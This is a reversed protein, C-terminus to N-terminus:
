KSGTLSNMKARKERLAAKQEKTLKKSIEKAEEDTAAELQFLIPDYAQRWATEFEHQKTIGKGESKLWAEQADGKAEMALTQAKAYRLVSQVADKTYGINANQRTISERAADTTANAGLVRASDAAIREAYKDLLQLKTADNEATDFGPIFAAMASEINARKSAWDSGGGTSLAASIGLAKDIQDLQQPALQAAIRNADVNRFNAETQQEFAQREGVGFNAPGGQVPKYGIINGRADRQQIFLNGLQDGVQTNQEGPGITLPVNPATGAPALPNTNRLEAGTNTFQPQQKSAQDAASTAQLQINQLVQGLKGKPANVIPGAYARLVSQADPYMEAFQAAANAVIDRGEPTDNAVREDSRLAGLMTGFESRQEGTLKTLAAVAGLQSQRIGIYKNLVDPFEDGAAKRLDESTAVKNLDIMGDSGIFPQVDIEALAKRQRQTQEAGATEAKARRLDVTARQMGILDSLKAMGDPKKIQLPISADVTTAM